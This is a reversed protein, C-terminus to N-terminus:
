KIQKQKIKETIFNLIKAILDKLKTTEYIAYMTQNLGYIAASITVVYAFSFQEIILLYIITSIISFGVSIALYIPPRYKKDIKKFANAYKMVGLGIIGVLAILAIQWGYTLAFSMLEEM